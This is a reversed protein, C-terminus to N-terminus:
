GVLYYWVQSLGDVCLPPCQHLAKKRKIGFISGTMQEENHFWFGTFKRSAIIAPYAFFVDSGLM